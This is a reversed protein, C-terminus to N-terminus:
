PQFGDNPDDEMIRNVAESYRDWKEKLQHLTTKGEDTLHYYQRMRGAGAIAEYSNVWGKKELRELVPYLSGGQLSFVGNSRENLEAILEYRYFDAETLLRLILMDLQSSRLDNRGVM